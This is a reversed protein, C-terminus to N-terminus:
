MLLIIRLSPFHYNRHKWLLPELMMNIISLLLSMSKKTQTNWNFLGMKVKVMFIHPFFNFISLILLFYFIPVIKTIRGSRFSCCGPIKHTSRVGKSSELIHAFASTKIRTFKINSQFSSDGTSVFCFPLPSRSREENDFGKWVLAIRSSSM